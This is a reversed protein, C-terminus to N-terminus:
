LKRGAKKPATTTSAFEAAIEGPLYLDHAPYYDFFCSFSSIGYRNKLCVLEIKRPDAAKAEKIAARKEKIAAKPDSFLDTNLCQFQLGWIVDATYEIGGSEKLSEFDIPTLYNARNVSSIVFVTLDLERSLRKLETVTSDILEKTTQRKDQDGQLIQLYDIFVIPKSGTQAMYRRTYEGIFSVTCAFNGEIISLRDAVAKTYDEAAKLVNEPLYGKRISLSTVATKIDNQATIRALSKSVMELRSQEMSFFLVDNGAAALQDAMQHAFTTKGLTSVAAIVYLGAYLGGAKEDLNAFGTKRDKAEKFRDIEGSMLDAIYRSVNDPRAATQAQARRIAATFGARDATLAENPDKAKGCIDATVYSINLRQLGTKLEEAAKSGAQDNDLCLILTARTRRQELMKLLTRRNETSNLAIADAGAEIVSLADFVGETVFVSGANDSFLTVANFIGPTSGKANLKQFAKPTAPDISRGTYHAASTPMIIRPCPHPKYADAGAGPANAPDAAPDFGIGYAEAADVSIGRGSLYSVAAPDHLRARCEQYYATYDANAGTPTKPANQPAKAEPPTEADGRGPFSSRRPKVPSEKAREQDIWINLRTAAEQLAEPFSSGQEQQILDIADGAFGCAFCKLGHPKKSQPNERIGTGNKGSGSGCLPCIIGKGSGDAPYLEKWRSRIDAIANEKTM